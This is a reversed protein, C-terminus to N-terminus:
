TSAGHAAADGLPTWTEHAVRLFNGGLVARVSKEPWNQRLLAETVHPFISADLYRIGPSYGYGEPWTGRAAALQADMDAQDFVYDLGIGVHDTGVLGAVYEIQAVFCRAMDDRTGLFISLGNIGVVGGSQACRRILDDPINRPHDHLARANSHSFVVPRTAMDFVDHATRYGTHSCCVTIGIRQMEAVCARGFGTLGRDEDDHCGGGLDNRANFVLALWRVGWERYRALRELRGELGKGGEVDFAILTLGRDKCERVAAADSVMAFEDPREQVWRTFFAAMRQQTAWPVDADGLNLSVLTAGSDRYLALLDLWAREERHPLCAHNDWVIAEALVCQARDAISRTM